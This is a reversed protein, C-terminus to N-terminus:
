PWPTDGGHHTEADVEPLFIRDFLGTLHTEILELEGAVLADEPLSM